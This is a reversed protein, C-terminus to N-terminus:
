LGRSILKFFTTEFFTVTFFQLNALKEFLAIVTNPIASPPTSLMSFFMNSKDFFDSATRILLLVFVLNVIM